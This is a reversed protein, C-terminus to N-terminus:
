PRSPEDLTFNIVRYYLRRHEGQPQYPPADTRFAIINRGPKLSVVKSVQVAGSGMPIGEDLGAGKLYLKSPAEAGAQIYMELRAERPIRTPNEVYLEAQKKSWRWSNQPAPGWTGEEYHYFGKGWSVALPFAENVRHEWEEPSMGAALRERHSRLDFFSLRQNPSVMPTVGLIRTLDAELEAARDAYGFRDIYIGNFGVFTLTDVIQALPKTILNRQWLDAARGKMGGYSWKLHKSHLYARYLEYDKLDHVPPHEPFPVYPLQFVMAGKPLSAEIQQIFAADHRFDESSKAYPPVYYATNMDLIGLTLLVVLFAQFAMRPWGQPFYRRRLWELLLAVQFLAFFAIFISIRNYARISPSVFLAFLSGFGGITGLLIAGLNLIALRHSLSSAVHRGRLLLFVLSFFGIAGIVGLTEMNENPLPFGDYKRAVRELIPLRHGGQPLVLQTIKMAFIEAEAAGRVAVDPNPGHQAHYLLTPTINLVVSGAIAVIMVGASVLTKPSRRGLYSSLAAVGFFFCAFFAYYVGTSGILLCALLILATRLGWRFRGDQFFPPHKGWLDLALLTIIPIMYYGSLMLHSVGRLFHFPLFTFLLSCVLATFTSIKYYRLVFFASLAILPFTLIFFGNVVAGFNPLVLTLLKILLMHATDALPFDYVEQQFPAGLNPNRLYWGHDQMTKVSMSSFLADGSSYLLPVTLDGKWFQLVASLILLSSLAVLAYSLIRKM